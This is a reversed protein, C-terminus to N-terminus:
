ESRRRGAHKHTSARGSVTMGPRREATPCFPIPYPPRLSMCPRHGSGLQEILGIISDHRSLPEEFMPPEKNESTLRKDPGQGLSGPRRTDRRSQPYGGLGYQAQAERGSSILAAMSHAPRASDRRACLSRLPHGVPQEYGLVEPQRPEPNHTVARAPWGELAGKRPPSAHAREPQEWGARPVRHREPLPFAGPDDYEECRANM